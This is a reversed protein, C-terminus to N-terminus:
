QSGCHSDLMVRANEMGLNNAQQLYVCAQESNELSLHSMAANYWVNAYGRDLSLYQDYFGIAEKFKKEYFLSNGILYLSETRKPNIQMADLFDRRAQQYAGTKLFTKGRGILALDDYSNAEIARTYYLTSSTYDGSEYANAGMLNLMPAFTLDNMLHDPLRASEDLIALNYWALYSGPDLEIARRLDNIAAANQDMRTYLQSRNVYFEALTDFEFSKNFDILALDIEGSKQYALGRYQYVRGLMSHLTTIFSNNSGFSDMRYYVARTESNFHNEIVFSFDDIAQSISGSTYYIMGKQFYAELNQPDTQIVAEYDALARLSKNQSEHIMGSLFYDKATPNKTLNKNIYYRASDLENEAFSIRAKEYYDQASITIAVLLTSLFLFPRM